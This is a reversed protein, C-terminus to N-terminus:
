PILAFLQPIKPHGVARLSGSYIWSQMSCCGFGMEENLLMFFFFFSDDPSWKEFLKKLIIFTIDCAASFHVALRLHGGGRATIQVGRLNPPKRNFNGIAHHRNLLKLHCRFGQGREREYPKWFYVFSSIHWRAVDEM